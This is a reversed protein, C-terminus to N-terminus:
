EDSNNLLIPLNNNELAKSKREDEFKKIHPNASLFEQENDYVLTKPIYPNAPEREVVEDFTIGLYEQCWWNFLYPKLINEDLPYKQKIMEALYDKYEDTNQYIKWGNKQEETLETM